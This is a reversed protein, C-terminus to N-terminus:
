LILLSRLRMGFSGGFEYKTVLFKGETNSFIFKGTKELSTAFLPLAYVVSCSYRSLYYYLNDTVDCKSLIILQVYSLLSLKVDM